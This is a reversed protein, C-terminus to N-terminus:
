HELLLESHDRQLEKLQKVYGLEKGDLKLSSAINSSIIVDKLKRAEDKLGQALVHTEQVSLQLAEAHKGIAERYARSVDFIHQQSAAMAEDHQKQLDDKRRQLM